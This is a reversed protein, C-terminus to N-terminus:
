FICENRQEYEILHIIGERDFQPHPRRGIQGKSSSM